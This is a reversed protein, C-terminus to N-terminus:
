GDPSLDGTLFHQVVPGLTAIILDPPASALPEVRLVYRVMALGVIQSAVLSVRLRVDAPDLDLGLHVKGLIQTVIFERLLKGSLRNGAASRILAIGASGAPGDWVTLFTRVLRQGIEARDGDVVSAVVERPDIPAFAGRAAELFAERADSDGSRRGPRGTM